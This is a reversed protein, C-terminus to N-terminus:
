ARVAGESLLRLGDPLPGVLTAFHAPIPAEFTMRKGNFPHALTLSLAHLALLRHPDDAWGYKQDGVVPHGIEALHVRIQNKRGTLLRIRLLSFLKTEKLVSYTTRALQGKSSDPTSYVRRAVSETLYSSITREKEKPIGHVVALYVKETDQWHDQLQRKAQETRAFVLVGSTDRDLRHVIFIRERSREFGKRVYNTLAHYATREDDKDTAITLVGPVKDVVIIDRDEYLITVGRPRHRSSSRPAASMPFM